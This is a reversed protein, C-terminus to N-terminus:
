ATARKLKAVERELMDRDNGCRETVERAQQVPIGDNDALYGVEDDQEGAVRDRHPGHRLSEHDAM